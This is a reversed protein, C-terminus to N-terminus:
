QVYSTPLLGHINCSPNANVNNLTYTGDAPCVPFNGRIYPGLDSTLPTDSGSKNNEAAWQHKMDYITRMNSFCIHKQAIARTKGINPITIAIFLGLILLVVVLEVFLLGRKNRRLM